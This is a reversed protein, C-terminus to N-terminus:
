TMIDCECILISQPRAFAELIEQARTLEQGDRAILCVKAGEKVFRKALALGLGRSGGTIMVVKDKFSFPRSLTSLAIAAAGAGLSLSLKKRNLIYSAFSGLSLLFLLEKKASKNM